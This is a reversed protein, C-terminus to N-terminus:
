IHILSLEWRSDPRPLPVKGTIIDLEPTADWTAQLNAQLFDDLKRGGQAFLKVGNDGWSNHSASVIAGAVSDASAVHAVAPTPVMGLLRVKIGGALFGEALALSLPVSSVRTDHGIVVTEAGLHGAAAFGLARVVPETLVTGAPGRVGDTGFQLTM